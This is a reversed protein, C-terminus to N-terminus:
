YDVKLKIESSKDAANPCLMVLCAWKGAGSADLVGSKKSHEEQKM